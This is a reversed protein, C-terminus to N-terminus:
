RQAARSQVRITGTGLPSSVAGTSREIGDGVALPRSESGGSGTSLRGKGPHGALPAAALTSSEKETLPNGNVWMTWKGSSRTVIGNLTLADGEVVTEQFKLNARQQDLAQRREPSFFLRGLPPATPRNLSPASSAADPTVPLTANQAFSQLNPALALLGALAIARHRQTLLAPRYLMSMM